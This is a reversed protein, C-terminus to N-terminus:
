LSCPDWVFCWHPHEYDHIVASTLFM